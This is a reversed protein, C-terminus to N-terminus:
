AADRWDLIMKLCAPDSFATRYAGEADVAPARHTILGDLSLRGGDILRTVAALDDPRFEASIRIRAERMFAPPFAFSLPAEYFGALVIEGGSALRAILADLGSADGSVDTIVAYDRRPDDDPALVAYGHDGARRIADREWVTPAAGAALTLRALLRGLVGHGVILPTAGPRIGGLARYATAALALLCAAEGLGADVPVLRHAPSVLHSAAGGFLGRVTGFCRAGPVFVTQGVRVAGAEDAEVITGVSEYGPVLPYGMGPFSPMRGSWLLRETGTSIGSWAIAVVADSGNAPELPLRQVSLHEPRELIVALADM